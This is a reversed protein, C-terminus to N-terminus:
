ADRRIPTGCGACRMHEARIPTGCGRCRTTEEDSTPARPRRRSEVRDGTAAAAPTQAAGQLQEARAVRAAVSDGMPEGCEFCLDAGEEVEAACAPCRVTV